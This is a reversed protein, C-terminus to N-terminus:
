LELLQMHRRNAKATWCSSHGFDCLLIKHCTSAHSSFIDHYTVNGDVFWKPSNAKLADPLLGVGGVTITAHPGIVFNHNVIEPPSSAETEAPDPPADTVALPEGEMKIEQLAGVHMPGPYFNFYAKTRIRLESTLTNGSNEFVPTFVWYKAPVGPQGAAGPILGDTLDVRLERVTVFARQVLAYSNETAEVNAESARLAKFAFIAGLSSIGIAAITLGIYFCWFTREKRHHNRQEDDWHEAEPAVPGSIPGNAPEPEREAETGATVRTSESTQGVTQDNTM